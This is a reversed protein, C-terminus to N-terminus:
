SWGDKKAKNFYCFSDVAVKVGGKVIVCCYNFFRLVYVVVFSCKIGVGPRSHLRAQFFRWLNYNGVYCVISLRAWRMFMRFDLRTSVAM